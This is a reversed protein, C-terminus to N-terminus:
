MFYDNPNFEKCKFLRFNSKKKRDVINKGTWDCHPIRSDRVANQDDPISFRRLTLVAVKWREEKDAVINWLHFESKLWM